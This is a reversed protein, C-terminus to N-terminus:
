KYKCTKGNQQEIIAVYVKSVIVDYKIRKLWLCPEMAFVRENAEYSQMITLLAMFGGAM